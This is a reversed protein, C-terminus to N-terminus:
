ASGAAILGLYIVVLGFAIFVQFVLSVALLLKDCTTTRSPRCLFFVDLPAIVIVLGAVVYFAPYAAPDPLNAFLVRQSSPSPIVTENPFILVLVLFCALLLECIFTLHLRRSCLTTSAM